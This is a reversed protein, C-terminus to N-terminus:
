PRTEESTAPRPGQARAPIFFQRDLGRAGVPRLTLSHSARKYALRERFRQCDAARECEDDHCYTLDSM